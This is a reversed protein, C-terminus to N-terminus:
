KIEDTRYIFKVQGDFDDSMGSFNRYNKSVDATAKIRTVLGKIDGGVLDTIKSIGEDNFKKLGDSLQMAGDKLKTVGTVLTPLGNKMELIGGYLVSMGDKIGATGEKLRYTGDSISKAGDAASAVGNTYTILGLYFANYSDLSSKLSIVSKAGNSAATLKSQVADSAMQESITQKIVNEVQAAITSKIGASQMQANIATEIQSQLEPSIQQASVAADYQEKTMQGGTAEGIVAAAVQERVAATVQAEILSRNAEVAQTVQSLAANYVATEDLSAIVGNLVTAYNEVTLDPVTIGASNLQSTATALLTDFVQKAGGNLEANHGKLESLGDSLESIYGKLEGAGNDLTTAADKLQKAGSAMKDIGAVLEGSKNLLTDLGGYLQSSGDLLKNMGETLQDASNTLDSISDLKSTDIKNFVENTAVTVTMGFKFNKADATIEIYDPLKIKEEDLALNDQLGPLAIGLVATRKGDNILKGNSVEVNRFTENDLLMGTLMVFPVYIKEQKGDISVTEFQRNDYDFRVTIRGSKGAIKEATVPKGDLKYSVSLGVPLEKEINGKYYIDNGEADWVTMNDSDLTYKENGKVNEINKLESKDAIKDSSLTNKIWDSVIIKKVSGDAGALVYVTEDKFPEEPQQAVPKEAGADSKIENKENGLAFAAGATGIILMLSLLVTTIKVPLKIM